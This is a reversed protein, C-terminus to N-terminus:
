RSARASRDDDGRASIRVDRAFNRHFRESDIDIGELLMILEERSLEARASASKIRQFKGRELRKCLSWFGNRDWVLLMVRDRRPNFFCFIAGSFPDEGLVDRVRQVLGDIHTQFTIPTTLAVIRASKPLVMM